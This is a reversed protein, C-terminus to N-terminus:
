STPQQKGFGLVSANTTEEIEAALARLAANAFLSSEGGPTGIIVLDVGEENVVAQVQERLNGTRAVIKAPIGALRAQECATAELFAIMHEIQAEPNIVLPTAAKPLTLPDFVYLFILEANRGQAIEIARRHTDQSAQGGRTLCLIKSAYEEREGFRGTIWQRGAIGLITAASVIGCIMLWDLFTGGVAEVIQYIIFGTYTAILFGGIPRTIARLKGLWRVDMLVLALVSFNIVNMFIFSQIATNGIALPRILAPLGLGFLLNFLNSGFATGFVLDGHGRRAAQISSAIEPLSTGPGIIVLGIIFEPIHLSAGIAATNLVLLRSAAVLVALGGFLALLAQGRTLTLATPHSIAELETVEVLLIGRVDKARAYQIILFLAVV